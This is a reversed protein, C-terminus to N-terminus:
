RVSCMMTGLDCNAGESGLRVRPQWRRKLWQFNSVALRAGRLLKPRSLTRSRKQQIKKLPQRKPCLPGLGEMSNV